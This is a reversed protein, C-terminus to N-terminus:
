GGALAIVITLVSGEVVKEEGRSGIPSPSGDVFVRVFRNIRQSQDFLMAHLKDSGDCIVDLAGRVTEAEISIKSQGDLFARMPPPIAVIIKKMYENEM